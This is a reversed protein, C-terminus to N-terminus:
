TSLLDVQQYLYFQYDSFHIKSSSLAGLTPSHFISEPEICSQLTTCHVAGLKVCYYQCCSLLM